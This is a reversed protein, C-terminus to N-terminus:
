IEYQGLYFNLIQIHLIIVIKAKLNVVCYLSLRIFKKVRNQTLKKIILLSTALNCEKLM